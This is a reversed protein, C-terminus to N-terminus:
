LYQIHTDIDSIVLMAFNESIYCCYLRYLYHWILSRLEFVKQPRHFDFDNKVIKAESTPSRVKQDDANLM